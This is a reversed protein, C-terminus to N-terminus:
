ITHKKSCFNAHIFSFLTITRACLLYARACTCVCVCVAEVENGKSKGNQRLTRSTIRTDTHLFVRLVCVYVCVCLMFLLALKTVIWKQRLTLSTIRTRTCVCAFLCVCLCMRVACVSGIENGKSKGNQRLYPINHQANNHAAISALHADVHEHAREALQQVKLVNM